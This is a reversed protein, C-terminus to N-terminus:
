TGSKERTGMGLLFTFVPTVISLIDMLYSQQLNSADAILQIILLALALGVLMSLVLLQFRYRARIKFKELGVSTINPPTDPAAGFDLNLIRERGEGQSADGTTELDEPLPGGANDDPKETM